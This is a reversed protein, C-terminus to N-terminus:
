FFDLGDCIFRRYREGRNSHKMVLWARLELGPIGPLWLLASIVVTLAIRNFM